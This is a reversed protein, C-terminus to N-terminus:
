RSSGSGTCTGAAIGVATLGLLVAAAPAAVNKLQGNLRDREADSLNLPAQLPAALNDMGPLGVTAALGVPVLLVLPLAAIALGTGCRTSLDSSGSEAKTAPQPSATTEETPVSAPLAPTSHVTSTVTVTPEATVTATQTVAPLEGGDVGVVKTRTTTTAEHATSTHTATVSSTVPKPTKTVTVVKEAGVTTTVTAATVTVEAPTSTETPTETVKSTVRAPPPTTTTTVTRPTVTELRRETVTTTADGPKSTSTETVTAPRVTTTAAKAATTSTDTVTVASPATTETTRETVTTVPTVTKTVPQTVTPTATVSKPIVTTSTETATATQTQTVQKTSTIPLVLTPTPATSTVTRTVTPTPATSTVTATVARTATATATSTETKTDTATVTSTQTATSTATRTSSATSTATSTVTQTTPSPKSTPVVPAPTSSAPPTTAGGACPGETIEPNRRIAECVAGYADVVGAGVNRDYDEEAVPRATSKLISRIDETGLNPNADLMMAIVGSVVPAAQSTGQQQGYTAGGRVPFNVGSNLTSVIMEYGDLDSLVFIQDAAGGPAAIDITSSGIRDYNSYYARKGYPGTAGVTLVGNCSAPSFTSAPVDSNGAAVVLTSGKALAQNISDQYMPNCRNRAGLSLNIVKAPYRNEPVGEAAGVGAAWLIGQTIDYTTGGGRGMARVPLIKADPAVGAVGVGNDTDAAAVGAVHTGHWSSPKGGTGSGEDTPNSDRGDRDGAATPDSIFDYGPLVKRDLDPHQTIGSDVVAINVGEGRYGLDWAGVANIGHSSRTPNQPKAWEQLAWQRAFEPDNPVFQEEQYYDPESYVIEAKSELTAVMALSKEPPIPPNLEFLVVGGLGQEVFTAETGNQRAADKVTNIRDTDNRGTFHNFKVMFREIPRSYDFPLTVRGSPTSMVQATPGDDQAHAPAAALSMPLAIATLAAGLRRAVACLTGPM